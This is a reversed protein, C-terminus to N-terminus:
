YRKVRFTHLIVKSFNFSPVLPEGDLLTLRRADCMFPIIFHFVKKDESFYTLNFYKKEVKEALPGLITM